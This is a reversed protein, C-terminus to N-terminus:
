GALTQTILFVCLAGLVPEYDRSRRLDRQVIAFNNRRRSLVDVDRNAGCMADFIGALLRQDENFYLSATIETFIIDDTQM